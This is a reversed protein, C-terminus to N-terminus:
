SALAAWLTAVPGPERTRHLGHGTRPGTREEGEDNGAVTQVLVFPCAMLGAARELRDEQNVM